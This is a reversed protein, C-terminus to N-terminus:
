AWGETAPVERERRKCVDQRIRIMKGGQCIVLAGPANDAVVVVGAVAAVWALMGRRLACWNKKKKTISQGRAVSKM